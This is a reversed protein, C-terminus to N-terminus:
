TVEVFKAAPAGCIPCKEPPVGFEINGCFPCLYFRAEAVDKGQAEIAKQGKQGRQSRGESRRESDHRVKRKPPPAMTEPAPQSFGIDSNPWYITAEAQAALGIAGAATLVVIRWFSGSFAARSSSRGNANFPELKGTAMSTGLGDVRTM